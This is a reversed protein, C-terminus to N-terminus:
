KNRVKKLYDLFDKAKAGGVVREILKGEPSVIFFTPVAYYSFGEPLMDDHIDLMVPVFNKSLYSAVSKQTFVDQKM